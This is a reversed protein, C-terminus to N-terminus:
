NANSQGARLKDVADELSIESQGFCVTLRALYAVYQVGHPMIEIKLTQYEQIGFIDQSLRKLKETAKKTAILM